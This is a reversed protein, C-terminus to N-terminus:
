LQELVALVANYNMVTTILPYDEVYVFEPDFYQEYDVIIGQEYADPLFLAEGPQLTNLTDLIKRQTRLNILRQENAEQLAIKDQIISHCVNYNSGVLTDFGGLDQISADNCIDVVDDRPFVDFFNINTYM